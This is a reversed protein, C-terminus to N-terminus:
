THIIAHISQRKEPKWTEDEHSSSMEGLKQFMEDIWRIYIALYGVLPIARTTNDEAEFAINRTIDFGLSKISNKKLMQKREWGEQSITHFDSLNKWLYRTAISYTLFQLMREKKDGIIYTKDILNQLKKESSAQIMDMTLPEKKFLELTEESFIQLLYERSNKLISEMDDHVREPNKEQHNQSKKITDM